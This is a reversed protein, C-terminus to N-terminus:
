KNKSQCDKHAIMMSALLLFDYHPVSFDSISLCHGNIHLSKIESIAAYFLKM